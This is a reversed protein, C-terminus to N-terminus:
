NDKLVTLTDPLVLLEELLQARGQLQGIALEGSARALKRSTAELQDRLYSAILDWRYVVVRDV